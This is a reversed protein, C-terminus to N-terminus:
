PMRRRTGVEIVPNLEITLLNEDHHCVADVRLRTLGNPVPRRPFKIHPSSYIADVLQTRRVRHMNFDCREPHLVIRVLVQCFAKVNLVRMQGQM